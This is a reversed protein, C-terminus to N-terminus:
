PAKAYESEILLQVEDGLAGGLATMGFDQRKITGTASIGFMPVKRMPHSAVEGNLVAKLTVPKTVGKLTLDGTIDATNAGTPVVSKSVFRITPHANGDLFRAETGIEKDFDTREPFPYDTKVSKTDITVAVRSAAPRASDLTVNSEVKTFRATYFSLGFHKIKFTVSTHTPDGVYAGSPITFGAPQSMVPSAMLMAAVMMGARM